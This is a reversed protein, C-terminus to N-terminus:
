SKAFRTSAGSLSVTMFIDTSIPERPDTCMVVKGAMGTSSNILFILYFLDLIVYQIAAFLRVLRLHTQLEQAKQAKERGTSKEKHNTDEHRISGPSPNHLNM